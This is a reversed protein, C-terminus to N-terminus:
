LGSPPLKSAKKAPFFTSWSQDTFISDAEPVSSDLTDATQQFKIYLVPAKGVITHGTSINALLM